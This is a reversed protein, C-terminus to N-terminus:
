SVFFVLTHGCHRCFSRSGLHGFSVNFHFLVGYELCISLSGWKHEQSPHWVSGLFATFCRGSGCVLAGLHLPAPLLVLCPLLPFDNGGYNKRGMSLEHAWEPNSVCESGPLAPVLFWCCVFINGQESVKAGCPGEGGWAEKAEKNAATSALSLCAGRTWLYYYLSLSHAHKTDRNRVNQVCRFNYCNLCLNRTACLAQKPFHLFERGFIDFYKM